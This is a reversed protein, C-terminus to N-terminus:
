TLQSWVRANTSTNYDIPRIFGNNLDTADTGAVLRWYQAVGSIVM